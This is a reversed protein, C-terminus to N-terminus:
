TATASTSLSGSSRSCWSGGRTTGAACSLSARSAQRSIEPARTTTFSTGEIIWSADTQAVQELQNRVRDPPAHETWLEGLANLVPRINEFRDAQQANFATTRCYRHRRSRDMTGIVASAIPMATNTEGRKRMPAGGATGRNRTVKQKLRHLDPYADDCVERPLAGPLYVALPRGDPGAIRTPGTLLVNFDDPTLMKGVKEALEDAPIKTRIRLEVM